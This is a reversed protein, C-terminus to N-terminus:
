LPSLFGDSIRYKSICLRYANTFHWLHRVDIPLRYLRLTHLWDQLCRRATERLWIRGRPDGLLTLKGALGGNGYAYNRSHRLVAHLGYRYGWTHYVIAQPTSAMKCGANEVRLKYDADEGAPFDPSGPGLYEDFRDILTVLNRRISVNGGVWDWGAPPQGPTATPDYIAESPILEPCTAPGSREKRPPILSGGVLEVDTHQQFYKAITALWNTDAECDDDMFAIIDGGALSIEANRARTTGRQPISCLQIRKDLRECQEVVKTVADHKGQGVVILEWNTWTQQQISRIAASLTDARIAPICVSIDM